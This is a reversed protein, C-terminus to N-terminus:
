PALRIVCRVRTIYLVDAEAGARGVLGTEGSPEAALLTLPPSRNASCYRRFCVAWFAVLLPLTIFFLVAPAGTGGNTFFVTCSFLVFVVMCGCIQM